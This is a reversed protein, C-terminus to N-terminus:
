ISTPYIDFSVSCIKRPSGSLPLTSGPSRHSLNTMNVKFPMLTKQRKRTRTGTRMEQSVTNKMLIYGAITSRGREQAVTTMMLIYGENTRSGCWKRRKKWCYSKLRQSDDSRWDLLTNQQAACTRRAPDKSRSNDPITTLPADHQQVHGMRVAMQGVDPQQWARKCGQRDRASATRASTCCQARTSNWALMQTGRRQYGPDLAAATATLDRVKTRSSATTAARADESVM